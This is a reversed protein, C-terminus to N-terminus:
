AAPKAPIKLVTGVHILNPDSGILTKNAAYIAPWLNGNGWLHQAIGWLSGCWSPYSCVKVTQNNTPPPAPAPKPAPALTKTPPKAVAVGGGGGGATAKTTTTAGTGGSATTTSTASGGSGGSGVGAGGGGGAASATSASNAGTVDVFVPGLETPMPQASTVLNSIPVTGLNSSGTQAQAAAQANMQSKKRHIMYATLGITGLGAWAWVPLPGAKQTLTEAIPM